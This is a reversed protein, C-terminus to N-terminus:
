ATLSIDEITSTSEHETMLAHSPSRNGALTAYSPQASLAALEPQVSSQSRKLAKNSPQSSLELKSPCNFSIRQTAVSTPTPFVEGLLPSNEIEIKSWLAGLV